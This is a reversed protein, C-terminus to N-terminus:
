TLIYYLMLNCAIKTDNSSIKKIKFRFRCQVWGKKKGRHRNPKKSFPMFAVQLRPIIVDIRWGYLSEVLYFISWLRESKHVKSRFWLGRVLSLNISMVSGMLTLALFDVLLLYVRDRRVKCSSDHLSNSPVLYFRAQEFYIRPRYAGSTKKVFVFENTFFCMVSAIEQKINAYNRIIELFKVNRSSTSTDHLENSVNWM